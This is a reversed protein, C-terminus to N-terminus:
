WDDCESTRAFFFFDSWAKEPYKHQLSGIFRWEESRHEKVWNRVPWFRLHGRDSYCKGSVCNEIEPADNSMIVVFRQSTDFLLEMYNQYINADTIHFIVELSFSLDAQLLKGTQGTLGARTGNYLIFRKKWDDAFRQQLRHVAFKSVDLGTYQPYRSLSLQTGDGSNQNITTHSHQHSVITFVPCSCVVSHQGHCNLCLVM